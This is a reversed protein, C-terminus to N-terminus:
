RYTSRSLPGYGKKGENVFGGGKVGKPTSGSGKPNRDAGGTRGKQVDGGTSKGKVKPGHGGDVGMGRPGSTLPMGPAPFERPGTSGLQRPMGKGSPNQFIADTPQRDAQGKAYAIDAGQFDRSGRGDDWVRTRGMLDGGNGEMSGRETGGVVRGTGGVGKTRESGTPSQDRRDQNGYGYRSRKERDSAM